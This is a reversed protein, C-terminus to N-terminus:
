PTTVTFDADMENTGPEPTFSHWGVDPDQAKVEGEGRLEFKVQYTEASDFIKLTEGGGNLCGMDRSYRDADDDGDDDILIRVWAGGVDNCRDLTANEGNITWNVHLSADKGTCGALVPLAALAVVIAITGTRTTM